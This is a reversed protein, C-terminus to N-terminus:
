CSTIMLNSKSTSVLLINERQMEKELTVGLVFHQFLLKNKTNKVKGKQVGGWRGGSGVSYNSKVVPVLYGEAIRECYGHFSSRLCSYSVQM